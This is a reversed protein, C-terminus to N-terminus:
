NGKPGCTSGLFPYQAGKQSFWFWERQRLRSVNATLAAALQPNRQCTSARVTRVTAGLEAAIETWSRAPM